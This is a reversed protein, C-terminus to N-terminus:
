TGKFKTHFNLPNITLDQSLARTVNQAKNKQLHHWHTLLTVRARLLRHQLRVNYEEALTERLVEVLPHLLVLVLTIEENDDAGRELDARNGKHGTLTQINAPDGKYRRLTQRDAPNICNIFLLMHIQSLQNQIKM